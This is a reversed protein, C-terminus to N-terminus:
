KLCEIFTIPPQELFTRWFEKGYNGRGDPAVRPEHWRVDRFGAARFVEEHTERSLYYNEIEFSGDELFFTWNIPAGECWPEGAQTEFGYQRYSPAERFDLAPNSNVTVFRGGPKLSRAIGRCMHALDNRDTAYNLLYAATVLECQEDLELDKVDDVIYAIGLPREGEQARALEIMGPSRDVGIVRSAGRQRLLRTYFGEGCAVDVVMQGAPDGVLAFLTYSEIHARWPQLKSRKYQQAIPDYDTLM